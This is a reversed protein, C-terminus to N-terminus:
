RADDNGNGDGDGMDDDKEGARNAAIDAARLAWHLAATLAILAAWLGFLWLAGGALSVAEPMWWVPLLISILAFVPLIRAVDGLRRRRYSSRELFLPQHRAM